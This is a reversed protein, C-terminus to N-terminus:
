VQNQPNTVIATGQVGEPSEGLGSARQGQLSRGVILGPQVITLKMCRHNLKDGLASSQETLEYSHCLNHCFRQSLIQSNPSAM